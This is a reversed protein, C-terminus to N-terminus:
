TQVHGLRDATRVHGHHDRQQVRVAAPRETGLAEDQVLRQQGHHAREDARGAGEEGADHALRHVPRQGVHNQASEASRRGDRDVLIGLLYLTHVNPEHKSPRKVQQAHKGDYSTFTCVSISAEPVTSASRLASLTGRSSPLELPHQRISVHGSERETHRDLHHDHRAISECDSLGGGGDSVDRQVQAFLALVDLEGHMGDCTAHGSLQVHHQGLRAHGVVHDELHVLDVLLQLVSVDDHDDAGVVRHVTRGLLVGLAGDCAHRDDLYATWTDMINISSCQKRERNSRSIIMVLYPARLVRDEHLARHGGSISADVVRDEVLGVCVHEQAVGLLGTLGNARFEDFLSLSTAILSTNLTM